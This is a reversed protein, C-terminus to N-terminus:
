DLDTILPFCKKLSSKAFYILMGFFFSIKALAKYVLSSFSAGYISM